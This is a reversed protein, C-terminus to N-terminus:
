RRRRSRVRTPIVQFSGDRRAWRKAAKKTKFCKVRRAPKFGGGSYVCYGTTRYGPVRTSAARYPM